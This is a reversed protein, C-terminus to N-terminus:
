PKKKDPPDTVTVAKLKESESQKLHALNLKQFAVVQQPFRDMTKPKPASNFEVIAQQSYSHEGMALLLELPVTIHHAGSIVASIAEATSKLSAAIIETNAKSADIVQRFTRLLAIGDGLLRTSRNIYPLVYRAGAECALYCQAPDFLATIGVIIGQRSLKSALGFNETTAPLKIAMKPSISLFREAERERSVVDYSTLQVFVLGPSETCLAEFLGGRPLMDFKPVKALLTPNTTVGSILGLPKARLLDAPDASDLYIGM